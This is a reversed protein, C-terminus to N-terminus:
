KEDVALDAASTFSDAYFEDEPLGCRAVFDRQASEIVIPAGCAYVQHGALSAFDEIVAHHVFGVRGNWQDEPLADSVVPVYRFRPVSNAWHEALGHMYLDQPRRGGWYLTIERGLDKHICHEIIAKIPAFGTGSALLVIPKKSDERLFFTGLPGEFRLIDKEKLEPQALGFLTDTFKGGPMHRIHLEIQDALHPATAMSYSRRSGDRLLLEIYQGALYQLREHAPLQLRVVAVDPVPRTISAVRCPMKRIPIDGAGAVIRAEITVDSDAKSCCLLAYGKVAEEPTLAKASHPGQEIMGEAVRSKCSGCAGNKCGYPLIVNQRLAAELIFEGTDVSFQKGSPLVTVTVTM